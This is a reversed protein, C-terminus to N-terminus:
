LYVSGRSFFALYSSVQKVTVSAAIGGEKTRALYVCVDVFM